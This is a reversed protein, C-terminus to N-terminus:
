KRLKCGVHAPGLPAKWSSDEAPVCDHGWTPFLRWHPQPFHHSPLAFLASNAYSPLPPVVVQLDGGFQQADWSGSSRVIHGVLQRYDLCPLGKRLPILPSTRASHQYLVIVRVDRCSCYDRSKIQFCARRYLQMVCRRTYITVSQYKSPLLIAGCPCTVCASIIARWRELTDWSIELQHAKVHVCSPAIWGLAIGLRENPVTPSSADCTPDRSCQPITTPSHKRHTLETDCWAANETTPHIKTHKLSSALYSVGRSLWNPDDTM